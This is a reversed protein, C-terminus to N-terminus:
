KLKWVIVGVVVGSCVGTAINILRENSKGTGKAQAIEVQLEAVKLLVDKMANNLTVVFEDLKKSQSNLREEQKDLRRNNAVEQTELRVVKNMLDVIVDLKKEQNDMKTEFRAIWDADVMQTKGEGAGM